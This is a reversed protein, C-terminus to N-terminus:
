TCERLIRASNTPSLNRRRSFYPARTRAARLPGPWDKVLMSDYNRRSSISRRRVATIQNVPTAAIVLSKGIRPRRSTREGRAFRADPISFYRGDRAYSKAESSRNDRQYIKLLSRLVKKPSRKM